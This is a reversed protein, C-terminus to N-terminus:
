KDVKNFLRYDSPSINYYNKFAKSFYNNNSYGLRESIQNIQLTPDNLLEQAREMRLKLAYEYIGYGFERKFTKSLYEKSFFYKESFMSVTIESSYNKDVYDKIIAIAEMPSINHESVINEPNIHHELNLAKVAKNLANNLDTDVIPKLLYDIVGYKIATQAYFFVDYGSVVIFKIGKYEESAEKLFDSGNMVPMQMDVFVIDPHLERIAALGEKGNNATFPLEIGLERWKGLKSIAIRAPKEDDIILAKYM